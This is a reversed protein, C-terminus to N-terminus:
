PVQEKELRALAREGEERCDDEGYFGWCSDVQEGDEDEIVYGYVEGTLFMDYTRVESVLSQRARELVDHTLRKKCFAKRVEDKTAYIFGVQGSDWACGFPETSITIGGHDYLYLPLIVAVDEAKSIAAKLEDWSSYDEERWNHSDGLDHRGHFCVMHGMNDDERPSQADPDPEIELTYKAATADM